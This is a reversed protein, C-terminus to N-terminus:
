DPTEPVAFPLPALIECVNDVIPVDDPVACYVIVGVAFLQTPEENVAEDVTFGIGFTVAVGVM